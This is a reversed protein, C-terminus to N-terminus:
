LFPNIHYNRNRLDIIRNYKYLGVIGTNILYKCFIISIFYNNTLNETIDM